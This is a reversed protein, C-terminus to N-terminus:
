AAHGRLNRITGLLEEAMDEAMGVIEEAATEAADLEDERLCVRGSVDARQVRLLLSRLPASSTTDILAQLAAAEAAPGPWPLRIPASM